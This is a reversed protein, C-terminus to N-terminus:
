ANDILITTQTASVLAKFDLFDQYTFAIPTYYYDLVNVPDVDNEKIDMFQAIIPAFDKKRIKFKGGNFDILTESIQKRINAQREEEQQIPQLEAWATELEAQTPQTIETNYWSIKIWTGDDWVDFDSFLELTPNIYLISEIYNM